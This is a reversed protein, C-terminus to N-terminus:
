PIKFLVITSCVNTQNVIFTSLVIHESKTKYLNLFKYIDSVLIDNLLMRDLVQTNHSVFTELVTYNM